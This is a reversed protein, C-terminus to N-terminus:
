TIEILLYEVYPVDRLYQFLIPESLVFKLSCLRTSLALLFTIKTLMQFLTSHSCCTFLGYHLNLAFYFGPYMQNKESSSQISQGFFLCDNLQWCFRQTILFIVCPIFQLTLIFYNSQPSLWSCTNCDAGSALHQQRLM